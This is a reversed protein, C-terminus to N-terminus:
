DLLERQSAALGRTKEEYEELTVKSADVEVYGLDLKYEENIENLIAEYPSITEEAATVSLSLGMCLTAAILVSTMRKLYKGM